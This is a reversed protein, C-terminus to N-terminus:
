RLRCRREESSSRWKRAASSCRRTWGGDCESSLTGTQVQSQAQWWSREEGSLRDACTCAAGKFRLGGSLHQLAGM